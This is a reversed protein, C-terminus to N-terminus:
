SESSADILNTSSNDKMNGMTGAKLGGAKQGFLGFNSGSRSPDLSQKGNISGQDSGPAAGAQMQGYPIGIGNPNDAAGRESAFAGKLGKTVNKAVREGGKRWNFKKPQGKRINVVQPATLVTAPEGEQEQLLNPMSNDTNIINLNRVETSSGSPNYIGLGNATPASGNAGRNSKYMDQINQLIQNNMEQLQANKNSLSEYEQFGKDKMQILNNIEETLENRKHMLEEIQATMQNKLKMLSDGFDKLIDTKLSAMDLPQSSDKVKALHDTMTELERVVLERQTDLVVMTTRKERLEINAAKIDSSTNVKEQLRNLETELEAVRAQARKLQAVLQENSDKGTPSSLLPSSITIPTSIEFGASAPSRGMASIGRDSFSRGHKVANSVKRLVSNGSAESAKSNRLMDGSSMFRALEEEMSFPAEM